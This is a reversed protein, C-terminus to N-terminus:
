QVSVVDFQMFDGIYPSPTTTVGPVLTSHNYCEHEDSGIIYFDITANGQIQVTATYDHNYVAHPPRDVVRDATYNLFYHQKPQSVMMAVMNFGNWCNDTPNIEPPIPIPLSSTLNKCASAYGGITPVGGTYFVKSTPDLQGGTYWYREFIGRVRLTVSYIINPDGGFTLTHHQNRVALLQPCTAAPSAVIAYNTLDCPDLLQYGNLVAAVSGDIAADGVNFHADSGVSIADSAGDAPPGMAADLQIAGDVATGSDAM